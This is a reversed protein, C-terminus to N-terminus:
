SLLPSSVTIINLVVPNPTPNPNHQHDELQRRHLSSEYHGLKLADFPSDVVVDDGLIDPSLM